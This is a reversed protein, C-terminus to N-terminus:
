QNNLEKIEHDISDITSEYRRIQYEYDGQLDNLSSLAQELYECVGSVQDRYRKAEDCSLADFRENENRAKFGNWGEPHQFSIQSIDVWKFHTTDTSPILKRLCDNLREQKESNLRLEDNLEDIQRDIQRREIKLDEVAASYTM